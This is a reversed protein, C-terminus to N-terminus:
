YWLVFFTWTILFCLRKFMGHKFDVVRLVMCGKDEFVPIDERLNNFGHHTIKEIAKMLAVFLDEHKNRTVLSGGQNQGERIHFLSSIVDEDAKEYEYGFYEEDVHSLSIRSLYEAKIRHPRYEGISDTIISLKVRVDQQVQKAVEIEFGDAHNGKNTPNPGVSGFRYHPEMVSYEIQLRAPDFDSEINLKINRIFAAGRDKIFCARFKFVFKPIVLSTSVGRCLLSVYDFLDHGFELGRSIKQTVMLQRNEDEEEEPHQICILHVSPWAIKICHSLKDQIYVYQNNITLVSMSYKVPSPTTNIFGTGYPNKFGVNLGEINVFLCCKKPKVFLFLFVCFFLSVMGKNLM